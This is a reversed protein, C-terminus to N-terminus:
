PSNITNPPPSRAALVLEWNGLNGELSKSQCISQLLPWFLMAFSHNM